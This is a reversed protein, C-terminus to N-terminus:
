KSRSRVLQRLWRSENSPADDLSWVHGSSAQRANFYAAYRGHAHKIDLWTWEPRGQALWERACPRVVGAIVGPGAGCRVGAARRIGFQFGIGEVISPGAGIPQGVQVTDFSLLVGLRDPFVGMGSPWKSGRVEHLSQFFRRVPAEGRLFPAARALLLRAVLLQREGSPFRETRCHRLIM